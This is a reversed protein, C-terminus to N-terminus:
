NWWRCPTAEISAAPLEAFAREARDVFVQAHEPPPGSPTPDPQGPQPLCTDRLLALVWRLYRAPDRVMAAREAECTAGDAMCIASRRYSGKSPAALDPVAVRFCAVRDRAVCGTPRAGCAVMSAERGALVDVCETAGRWCSSAFAGPAHRDLCVWGQGARKPSPHDPPSVRCGAVAIALWVVARRSM